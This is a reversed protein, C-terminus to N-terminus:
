VRGAPLRPDGLLEQLASFEIPKVLHHDFGAARTRARSEDDGWGTVAILMPRASGGNQRLRRAVEFGDMRPLGIDLLVAQPQFGEALRLAEPGDAATRVQYGTSKLRVALCKAADQHDEVVLVRHLSGRPLRATAAASNASMPLAREARLPATARGADLTGLLDEMRRAQREIIQVAEARAAADDDALHIVQLANKIVHLANRMDHRFDSSLAAQSSTADPVPAPPPIGTRRTRVGTHRWILAAVLTLVAAVALMIAYFM